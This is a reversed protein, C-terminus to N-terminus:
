KKQKNKMGNNIIMTSTSNITNSKGNLFNTQNPTLKLKGWLANSGKSGIISTANIAAQKYNGDIINLGADIIGGATSLANGAGVLAGAVPQLGPVVAAATGVGSLALGGGNCIDATFEATGRIFDNQAQHISQVLPNSMTREHDTQKANIEVNNLPASDYWKGDQAGYKVEGDSNTALVTKGLYKEGDKTNDPKTAKDDWYVNKTASEVWDDSLGTPDVKNIPSNSCYHYFTLWPKTEFLPDPTTFIIMFPDYYRNEYHYLQSEEDFEKAEVTYDPLKGQHWYQNYEAIPVGWPTTLIAQTIDANIDTIIQTSNRNNQHYFFLGYEYGNSDDGHLNQIPAFPYNIYEVSDGTLEGLENKMITLLTDAQATGDNTCSIDNQSGSGIKSAIRVDDAYYHKTYNGSQDLNIFGNPYIMLRDVDLMKIDKYNNTYSSAVNLQMKCVREGGDSYGYYSYVEGDNSYAKMQGFANHYYYDTKSPTVKKRLSGGIGFEFTMTDNANIPAFRNSPANTTQYTYTNNFTQINNTQPNIFTTNYTNIRGYNGYSM